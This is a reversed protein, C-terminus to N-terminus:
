EGAAMRIPPPAGCQPGSPKPGWMGRPGIPEAVPISSDRAPWGYKEAPTTSPPCGPGKREPMPCACAVACALAPSAGHMPNSWAIAWYPLGGRIAALSAKARITPPMPTPPMPLPEPLPHLPPTPPLPHSTEPSINRDESARAALMPM